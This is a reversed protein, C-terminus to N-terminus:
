RLATRGSWQWSNSKLTVGLWYSKSSDRLFSVCDHLPKKTETLDRLIEQPNKASIAWAEAILPGNYIYKKNGIIEVCNNNNFLIECHAKKYVFTLGGNYEICINIM